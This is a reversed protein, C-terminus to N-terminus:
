WRSTMFSCKDCEFLVCVVHKSSAHLANCWDRTEEFPQVTARRSPGFEKKLGAPYSDDHYPNRSALKDATNQARAAALLVYNKHSADVGTVDVGQPSLTFIDALNYVDSDCKCM